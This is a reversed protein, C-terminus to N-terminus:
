CSPPAVCGSSRSRRPASAPCAWRPSGSPCATAARIEALKAPWEDLQWHNWDLPFGHVGVADVEELAGGQALTAVFAPDIPSMGGMVRTLGPREARVAAGALRAMASFQRWGPDLEFDWHSLNNPENWLMVAEIV